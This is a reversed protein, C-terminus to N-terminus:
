AYQDLFLGNLSRGDPLSSHGTLADLQLLSTTVVHMAEFPNADEGSYIGGSALQFLDSIAERTSELAQGQLPDFSSTTEEWDEDVTSNVTFTDFEGQFGDALTIALRVGEQEVIYRDGDRTLAQGNMEVVRETGVARYSNASYAGRLDSTAASIHVPDFSGLHDDAFQFAVETGDVDVLFTDNASSYSTGNITAIGDTGTATGTEDGGQVDFSAPASQITIPDLTGTFDQTVAFTVQADNVSVDFDNGSATYSQGNITAEADVGIASGNEDLGSLTFSGEHSTVTIPDLMGSADDALQFSYSGLGDSYSITNGTGTITQGNINLTADTGVATGSGDGGTTDFEGSQVSVNVTGSASRNVSALTLEDGDLTAIVGTSTTEANIADRVSSLSQGTTLNLTANGFEGQILVDASDTLQGSAGRYVLEARSATATVGINLTQSPVPELSDVQFSDLQSNNVGTVQGDSSRVSIPDLEGSFGESLEFSYTGVGDSYTVQNETATVAQGNIQLEADLGTANGNGDGGTTDFTGSQTDVEVFGDSGFSDSILTLEDGLLTAIVGTNDTQANISNRVSELSQGSFILLSRTGREGSISILASDDADGNSGQYVLKARTAAVSVEGTLTSAPEDWMSLVDFSDVQSANVGSVSSRRGINTASLQVTADSGVQQSEFVLNNGDVSAVVGTAGSQSNVRDRVDTLSEGQSVAFQVTGLDGSLDFTTTSHITGDTHGHYTASAHDSASTISGSLTVEAGETINILSFDDLQSQTDGEISTEYQQVINDVRLSSSAGKELSRIQLEGNVVEAEAGTNASVDNIRAALDALSEGKVTAITETGISGTLEFSGTGNVFGNSDGLYTVSAATADSDRTGTLTASQGPRLADVDVSAIQSHNQGEITADSSRRIVRTPRVDVSLVADASSNRSVLQLTGDNNIADVGYDSSNISRVLGSLTTGARIQVTKSGLGSDVQLTGGGSLLAQTESIRVNAARERQTVEGSLSLSKGLPLALVEVDAIQDSSVGSITANEPGGLSLSSGLLNSIESLADDIAYQPLSGDDSISKMVRDKINSVLSTIRRFSPNVYSRSSSDGSYESSRAAYQVNEILLRRNIAANSSYNSNITM